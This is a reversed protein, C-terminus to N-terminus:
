PQLIILSDGYNSLPEIEDNWREGNLYTTPNPIYGQKWQKGLQRKPIDDLILLRDEESLLKWKIESKKREVKKPYLDWFQTFSTYREKTNTEKTNTEKTHSEKTVGRYVLNDGGGTVKKDGRTVKKDSATWQGYDKNFRYKNAYTTVKKDSSLLKKTVLKRIARVCSSRDMETKEVFQSLSIEDEKKQWGWTQRLVVILIQWEQGSIRYRGLKEMLENAIPTYGNEKQPNSM